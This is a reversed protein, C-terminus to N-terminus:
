GNRFAACLFGSFCTYADVHRCSGECAASRAATGTKATNTAMGPTTGFVTETAYYGRRYALTYSGNRMKVGIRRFSGDAKKNTPAYSLTYYQSGDRIARAMMRSLDNSTPLMVGGTESALASM